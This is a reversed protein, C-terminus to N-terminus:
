ENDIHETDYVIAEINRKQLEEALEVFLRNFSDQAVGSLNGHCGITNLYICHAKWAKLLGEDTLSSISAKKM